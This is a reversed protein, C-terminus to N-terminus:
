VAEDVDVGEDVIDMVNVLECVADPVRVLVFVIEDV